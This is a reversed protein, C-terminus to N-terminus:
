HFRCCSCFRTARASRQPFVAALTFYALWAADVKDDGDAACNEIALDPYQSGAILGLIAPVFAVAALRYCEM